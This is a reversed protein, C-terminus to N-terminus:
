RVGNGTAIIHRVKTSCARCLTWAAANSASDHTLPGFDVRQGAFAAEGGPQRTRVAFGTGRDDDDLFNEAHIRADAVLDVIPRGLAIERDRGVYEPAEGGAVIDIGVHRVLKLLRHLDAEVEIEVLCDRVDLGRDAV